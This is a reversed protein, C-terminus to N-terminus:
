EYVLEMCFKYIVGEESWKGIFIFGKNDPILRGEVSGQENKTSWHGRYGNGPELTPQLVVDYKIGHRFATFCLGQTEDNSPRFHIVSANSNDWMPTGKFSQPVGASVICGEEMQAAWKAWGEPFTFKM